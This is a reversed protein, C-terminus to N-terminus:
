LMPKFGQNEIDKQANNILFKIFEDVESKDDNVKVISIVHQTDYKLLDNGKFYSANLFTYLNKSNRVIKFADFQSNVSDKINYEIDYHNLSNWALRQASGNVNIFDLGELDSISDIKKSQPSSVLVLYDYAIPMFNIDREYAILPDDLTLIDVAGRKALEFADEDSSSYINIDFPTSISEILGTSIHGGVINIKPTKEIQILYKKFEELLKIGTETLETGNGVKKTIKEGLKEEAKLIRKNFVTHSINLKKASKRQSKTQSLSNLSQYLKYDYIENNIKLSILGKSQFKM